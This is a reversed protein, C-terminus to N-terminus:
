PALLPRLLTSWLQYGRASLHLGDDAYLERRPREDWGLMVGDVDLYALRDDRSCVARIRANADRMRDITLWRAPSPKIAIYVIRAQPLRAHVTRVFREFQVTVQETTLGADIDNDGAYLVVTRPQYPLVLREVFRVADAMSSGWLGRKLIPLGPFSAAVDWDVITSSGVFVIGGAPPPAALDAADFAAVERAYRGLDQAAAPLALLLFAVVAKV